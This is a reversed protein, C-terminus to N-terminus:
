NNLKSIPTPQNQQLYQLFTQTLKTIDFDSKWNWDEQATTDDLSKPWSDAIQQRFDPQYTITFEPLLQQISKSIEAPSFTMGQINYSSRISICKPDAEMLEVTARIADDMYMMPLYTDPELFCQYTGYLIAHHFIEVAYDTTGGGPAAKCGILGPYRLSRIDLNKKQFYYECLREGALKTIGYMSTPEMVCRQPTMTKPTTPGFVAISSPWFLQKVQLEVCTDLVHFLGDMNLKWAFAPDQEGKASLIAALHYVVQIDYQKIIKGLSQKDLVDLLVFDSPFPALPKQIDAAIIKHSGYRACLYPVLETGLQGCAGIVLINGSQRM